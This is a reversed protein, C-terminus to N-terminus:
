SKEIPDAWVRVPKVGFEAADRHARAIGEEKGKCWTFARIIEGTESEVYIVYTPDM